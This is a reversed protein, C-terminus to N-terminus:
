RNMARGEATTNDGIPQSEGYGKYTLREQAVGYHILFARVTKARRESLGENRFADGVDDTHGAVEIMLEPYKNLTDAAEQLLLETGYILTDQGTEFNVGPLSIVDTIECGRVDTRVGPRTFLCDDRHDPVGDKDNDNECGYINVEAGQRSNPCRDQETPVGDMDSDQSCGFLDVPSGLPTDPCDDLSNPVRDEDDDGDIREIPCGRSTVTVGAPTNACADWIDLVGDGDTDVNSRTPDGPASRKGFDYQLGITAIHDELDRPDGFATRARYETRLSYSSQGWRWKFGVGYAASVRNDRGTNGLFQTGDEGDVALYGVSLLLYPAFIADRNFYGLLNAGLELHQQDPWLDFAPPGRYGKLDSYGFFGEMSIYDSFDRGVNIQIGSISDEVNRDGDDDIWVVSPAIHWDNSQGQALTGFSMAIAIITFRITLQTMM